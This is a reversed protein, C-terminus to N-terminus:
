IPSHGRVHRALLLRQNRGIQRQQGFIGIVLPDSQMEPLAQERVAQEVAVVGDELDVAFGPIRQRRVSDAREGREGHNAFSASSVAWGSARALM